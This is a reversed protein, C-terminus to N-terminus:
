QSGRAIKQTPVKKAFLSGINFEREAM